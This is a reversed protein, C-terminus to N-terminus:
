ESNRFHDHVDHIQRAVVEVEEVGIKKISSEVGGRSVVETTSM